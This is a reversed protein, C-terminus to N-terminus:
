LGKNKFFHLLSYINEEILRYAENSILGNYDAMELVRCVEFHIDIDCNYVLLTEGYENKPAVIFSSNEKTSINPTQEEELKFDMDIMLNDIPQLLTMLYKECNDLISQQSEKSREKFDDFGIDEINWIQIDTCNGYKGRLHTAVRSAINKSQGVYLCTKGNFIAYVGSIKINLDTNFDMNLANNIKFYLTKQEMEHYNHIEIYM